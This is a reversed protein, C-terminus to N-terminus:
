VSIVKLNLLQTEEEPGVQFTNLYLARSFENHSAQNHATYYTCGKTVGAWQAVTIFVFATKM